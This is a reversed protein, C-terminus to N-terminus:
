IEPRHAPGEESRQVEVSGLEHPPLALRSAARHLDFELADQLTEELPSRYGV